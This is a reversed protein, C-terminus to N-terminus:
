ILSRGTASFEAKCCLVIEVSLCGKRVPNLGEFGALSRGCVCAKFRAAYDPSM